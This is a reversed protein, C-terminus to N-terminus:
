SSRTATRGSARRAIASARRRPWGSRASPSAAVPTGCSPTRPSTELSPSPRRAPWAERRERDERQKIDQNLNEFKFEDIGQEKADVYFYSDGTSVKPGLIVLDNGQKETKLNIFGLEKGSTYYDKFVLPYKTIMLNTIDFQLLEQDEAVEPIDYGNIWKHRAVLNEIESAQEAISRGKKM